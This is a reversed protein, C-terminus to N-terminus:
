AEAEAEAEAQAQAQGSLRVVSGSGLGIARVRLLRGLLQDLLVLELGDQAVDLEAVGAHEHLLHCALQMAAELGVIHESVSDVLAYRV